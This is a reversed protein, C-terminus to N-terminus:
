RLTLKWRAGNPKGADDPRNICYIRFVIIFFITPAGIVSAVNLYSLSFTCLCDQRQGNMQVNM